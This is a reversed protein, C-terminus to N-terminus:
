HNAAPSVAPVPQPINFSIPASEHATAPLRIPKVNRLVVKFEEVINRHTMVLGMLANLDHEYNHLDKGAVLRLQRDVVTWDGRYGYDAGTYAAQSFYLFSDLFYPRQHTPDEFANDSSGYPVKIIAIANPACVRSLEQMMSLPRTLHELIHSAYVSNFTDDEFPWRNMRDLDLQVDPNLIGNKDVNVCDTFKMGGCGLNLRAVRRPQDDRVVMYGKCPIPAPSAANAQGESSPKNNSNM